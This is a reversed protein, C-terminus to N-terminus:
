RVLIQFAAVCASNRETGEGLGRSGGEAIERLGSTGLRPPPPLSRRGEDIVLHVSIWTYWCVYNEARQERVSFLGRHLRFNTALATGGNKVQFRRAM